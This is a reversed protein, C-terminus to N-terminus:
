FGLKVALNINLSYVKDDKLNDYTTKLVLCDTSLDRYECIKHNYKNMLSSEDTESHVYNVDSSNPYAQKYSYRKPLDDANGRYSKIYWNDFSEEPQVGIKDILQELGSNIIEKKLSYSILIKKISEKIESGKKDIKMDSNYQFDDALGKEIDNKNSLFFISKIDEKNM